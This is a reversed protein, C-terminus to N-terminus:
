RAAESAKGRHVKRIATISSLWASGAIEPWTTEFHARRIYNIHWGKGFVERIEGQTIRRPGGWDSPEHESFCLM